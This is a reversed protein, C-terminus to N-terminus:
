ATARAPSPAAAAPSSRSSPAPPPPSPRCPPPASTTTPSADGDDDEGATATNSGATSDDDERGPPGRGEAAAPMEAHVIGRGATMFQLDGPGLSGRHGAFDEHDMGGRLLYTVTEQGRHPHDPFGAGPRVSFHDLMLFPTLSPLRATGIARRVRAGAGEAKEVAPVVARVSRHGAM